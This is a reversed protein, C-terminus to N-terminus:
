FLGELQIEQPLDWRRYFDTELFELRYARLYIKEPESIVDGGYLVDGLIPFGHRALDFRLQHSRGTVPRLKWHYQDQSAGAGVFQAETVSVKGHPSEFSRKKGRLVRAKWTYESGPAPIEGQKWTTLAQYTKQVQHKEFIQNAERHAQSNL